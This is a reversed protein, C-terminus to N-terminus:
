RRILSAIVTLAMGAAIAAWRDSTDSGGTGAPLDSNDPFHGNNLLYRMRNGHDLSNLCGNAYCDLHRLILYIRSSDDISRADCHYKLFQIEQFTRPIDRVATGEIFARVMNSLDVINAEVESTNFM